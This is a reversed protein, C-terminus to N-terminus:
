GRLRICRAFVWGTLVTKLNSFTPATMTVSLGQLLALFVPVLEM